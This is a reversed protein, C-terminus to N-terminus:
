PKEKHEAIWQKVAEPGYEYRLLTDIANQRSLQGKRKGISYGGFPNVRLLERVLAFDPMADYEDKRDSISM